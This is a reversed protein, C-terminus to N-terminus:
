RSVSNVATGASTWGHSPTIEAAYRVYGGCTVFLALAATAAAMKGFKFAVHKGRLAYSVGLALIAYYYALVPVLYRGQIAVPEGLNVYDHYNRAWLFFVYVVTIAGLALLLPHNHAIRKIQTAAALGAVATFALLAVYFSRAIPVMGGTPIIEAYMQYWITKAWLLSYHAIGVQPPASARNQALTYNRNWAYYQQCASVSLVQNCQPSPSHYRVLNVGYFAAFLGGGLVCLGILAAKSGTHLKRFSRTFSQWLVVRNKFQRAIAWALCLAIGVLVPLFSYKVLSGFLCVALLGLVTKAHVAQQQLQQGLRVTLYAATATALLLLNDYNIQASLATVVPTFAFVCLVLNTVGGHFKLQRFTQRLVLLTTVAIGVNLLRLFIIQTRVDSTLSSILHYPFSLLYHYLWSPNYAINGLGYTEPSQQLVIPNLHHSWFQILQFHFSEDFAMQFASTIALWGAEAAFLLLVVRFFWKSALFGRFRHYATAATEQV